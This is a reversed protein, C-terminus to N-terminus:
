RFEEGGTVALHTLIGPELLKQGPVGVAGGQDAVQFRDSFSGAAQQDAIGAIFDPVVDLALQAFFGDKRRVVAVFVKAVAKPLDILNKCGSKRRHLRSKLIFRRENWNPM